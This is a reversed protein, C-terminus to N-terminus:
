SFSLSNIQLISFLFQFRYVTDRYENEMQIKKMIFFGCSPQLPFVKEDICLILYKVALKYLNQQTCTM